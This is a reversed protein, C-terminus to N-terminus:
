RAVDSMNRIRVFYEQRQSTETYLFDFPQTVIKFRALQGLM